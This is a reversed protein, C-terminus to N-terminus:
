QSVQHKGKILVSQQQRTYTHWCMHTHTHTNTQNNFSKKCVKSLVNWKPESQTAGMTLFDAFEKIHNPLSCSWKWKSPRTWVSNHKSHIHSHRRFPKSNRQCKCPWRTAYPHYLVFAITYKYHDTLFTKWLQLKVISSLLLRVTRVALWCRRMNRSKIRQLSRWPINTDHLRWNPGWFYGWIDRLGPQSITLWRSLCIAEM